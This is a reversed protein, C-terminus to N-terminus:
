ASSPKGYYLGFILNRIENIKRVQFGNITIEYSNNQDFIGERGRGKKLNLRIDEFLICSLDIFDIAECGSRISLEYIFCIYVSFDRM